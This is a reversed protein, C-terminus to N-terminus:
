DSIIKASGSKLIATTVDTNTDTEVEVITPESTKTVTQGESMTYVKGILMNISIDTPPPTESSSSGGGKSCATLLVSFIFIILSKKM